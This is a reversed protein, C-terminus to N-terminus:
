AWPLPESPIPSHSNLDKLPELGSVGDRASPRWSSAGEFPMYLISYWPTDVIFYTSFPTLMDRNLRLVKKPLPTCHREWWRLPRVDNPEPGGNRRILRGVCLPLRVTVRRGQPPVPLEFLEDHSPRISFINPSCCRASSRLRGPSTLNVCIFPLSLSLRREHVSM